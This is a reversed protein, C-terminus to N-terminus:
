NGRYTSYGFPSILLPIHTHKVGENLVFVVSVEPFFSQEGRQAFWAGTEFTVRYHGQQLAQAAPYLGRIRGDSDTMARSLLRWESGVRRELSVKVGQSPLGTSTNLVHVSLPNDAAACSLASILAFMLSFVLKAM